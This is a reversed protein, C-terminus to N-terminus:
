DSLFSGGSAVFNGATQLGRLMNKVLSPPLAENIPSAEANSTLPLGPIVVGTMSIVMALLISLALKSFRQIRNVSLSQLRQIFDAQLSRLPTTWDMELEVSQNYSGRDIQSM